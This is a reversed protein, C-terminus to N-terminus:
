ITTVSELIVGADGVEDLRQRAADLLAAPPRAEFRGVIQPARCEAAFAIALNGGAFPGVSFCDQGLKRNLPRLISAQVLETPDTSGGSLELDLVVKSGDDSALVANLVPVVARIESLLAPAAGQPLGQVEMRLRRSAFEFNELFFTKSFSEGVLRGIEELALEESAWSKGKPIETNTYVEEGTRANLAKVTFSTLAFKEVTLGSAPLRASLKKLSATGEVHFDVGDKAVDPDFVSFGFSRIRSKVLNEAVESREPGDGDARQLLISVAIRPDGNNRILQVREDRSMQNLSKQVERVDVTARLSATVLGSKTPTATSEDLVSRIFADSRSLVRSNVVGYNRVLSGPEVYLAAAKEILQRRADERAREGAAAPDAAFRPDRPDAVGLASIIMTDGRQAAAPAAAIPASAPETAPSAAPPQAAQTSSGPPAPPAAGGSWRSKIGGLDFLWGGVLALVLLGAAAMPLRLNRESEGAAAVPTAPVARSGDRVAGAAAAVSAAASGARLVTEQLEGSPRVVTADPLTERGASLAEGIARKFEAASQYRDEPRKAMARRIVADLPRPAQVNLASPLTPQENLVKHMVATFSGSFPLDATLLQYLVVGASYIDSRADVTQGMFQEPSMHSPSGMVTGVQTLTSSEVRAIGFDAVKVAGNGLLMINAPKIDRHVVGREHSYQLADLLEGMIRAVEALPFREHKEFHSELERGEVFEMAIWASRSARGEGSPGAEEGYDYVSVINPHSLRGAAQAERRLRALLEEELSAEFQASRVVKLAVRREILPDYGEYVVGMGGQGIERRVEYKGLTQPMTM